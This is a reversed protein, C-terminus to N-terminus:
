TSKSLRFRAYHLQDPVEVRGASEHMKTLSDEVCYEIGAVALSESHSSLVKQYEELLEIALKYMLKLDTESTRFTAYVKNYDGAHEKSLHVFHNDRQKKLAGEFASLEKLLHDGAEVARNLRIISVDKLRGGQVEPVLKERAYAHLKSLSEAKSARDSLKMLSLRACTLHADLTFGMFTMYANFLGPKKDLLSLSHSFIRFHIDGQECEAWLVEHMRKFAELTTM